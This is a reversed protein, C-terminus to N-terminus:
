AVALVLIWATALVVCLINEPSFFVFLSAALREPYFGFIDPGSYQPPKSTLWCKRIRETALTTGILSVLVLVAVVIGLLSLITTLRRSKDWAFGLSAFLFGQLQCLWTLRRDIQTAEHQLMSRLTTALAEVKNEDHM